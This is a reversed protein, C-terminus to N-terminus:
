ASGYGHSTKRDLCRLLFQRVRSLAVQVAGETRGTQRAIERITAGGRYRLDLLKRQRHEVQGMCEGLRELRLATEEDERAPVSAFTREIAGALNPSPMLRLYREKRLANRALNLAIGRVWAGFDASRDFEGLKRLVVLCTEQFLDEALHADRVLVRLYGLVSARMGTFRRILDDHEQM